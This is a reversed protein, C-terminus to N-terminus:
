RWAKEETATLFYVGPALGPFGAIGAESASKRSFEGVKRGSLDFLTAQLIGKGLMIRERPFTIICCRFNRAQQERRPLVSSGTVSLRPYPLLSDGTFIRRIEVLEAVSLGITQLYNWTGLQVSTKQPDFSKLHSMVSKWDASDASRIGNVSLSTWEYDRAMQEESCGLLAELLAAITGTRDAGVRCHLIMPYNENKAMESFVDLIASPTNVLGSLYSDMGDGSKTVPRLYRRLWPIVIQPNETSNRLDIECVIGLRRLQDLGKASVTYTQNFEASRYFLGQGIMAGNMVARGGIDRVNTTGDIYMMRPWGNPTSFSDTASTWKGKASDRGTIKWLYVTNIKLNWVALQTDAIGKAVIDTSDFVRDESIYIDYVLPLSNGGATWV